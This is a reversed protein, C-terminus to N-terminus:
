HRNYTVTIIKKILYNFQIKNELLKSFLKKGIYLYPLELRSNSQLFSM